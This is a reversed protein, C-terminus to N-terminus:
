PPQTTEFDAQGALTQLDEVPVQRSFLDNAVLFRVSVDRPRQRRSRCDTVM